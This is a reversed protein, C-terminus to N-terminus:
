EETFSDEPKCGGRNHSDGEKTSGKHDLGRGQHPNCNPLDFVLQHDEFYPSTRRGTRTGAGEKHQFFIKADEMTCKKM